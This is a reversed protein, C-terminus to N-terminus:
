PEFGSEMWQKFTKCMESTWPDGGLPMQPQEEGTVRAYVHNANAHDPFSQDGAPDAMYDYRNLYVAMPAMCQIDESTFLPAIDRKFSVGM